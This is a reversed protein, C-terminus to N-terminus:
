GRLLGVANTVNGVPHVCMNVKHLGRSIGVANIPIGRYIGVPLRGSCICMISHTMDQPCRTVDQPYIGHTCSTNDVPYVKPTTWPIDNLPYIKPTRWPIYGINDVTHLINDVPNGAYGNPFGPTDRPYLISIGGRHRNAVYGTSLVHM